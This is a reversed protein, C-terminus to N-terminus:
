QAVASGVRWPRHRVPHRTGSGTEFRICRENNSRVPRRRPGKPSLQSSSIAKWYRSAGRERDASVAPPTILLDLVGVFQQDGNATDRGSVPIHCASTRLAPSTTNRACRGPGELYVCGTTPHTKEDRQKKGHFRWLGSEARPVQRPIAMGSTIAGAPTTKSDCGVRCHGHCIRDRV